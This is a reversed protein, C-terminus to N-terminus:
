MSPTVQWAPEQQAVGDAAAGAGASAGAWGACQPECAAHATRSYAGLAHRAASASRAASPARPRCSPLLLSCHFPRGPLPTDELPQPVTVEQLLSHAPPQLRPTPSLHPPLRTPPMPASLAERESAKRRARQASVSPCCDASEGDAARAKVAAPVGPWLRRPEVIARSADNGVRWWVPNPRNATTQREKQRSPFQVVIGTLSESDSEAFTDM